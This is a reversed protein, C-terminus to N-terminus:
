AEVCFNWYMFINPACRVVTLVAAPEISGASVVKRQLPM